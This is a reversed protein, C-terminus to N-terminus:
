PLIREEELIVVEQVHARYWAENEGFLERTMTLSDLQFMPKVNSAPVLAGIRNQLIDLTRASFQSRGSEITRKYGHYWESALELRLAHLRGLM